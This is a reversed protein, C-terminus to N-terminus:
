RTKTGSAIEDLRAQLVDAPMTGRARTGDLFYYTPTSSVGLKRALQANSAVTADGACTDPAPSEPLRGSTMWDRWAASSDSACAIAHGHLKSNEGLIEIMAVYVTTDKLKALEPEM